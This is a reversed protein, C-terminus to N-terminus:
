FTLNELSDSTRVVCERVDCKIPSVESGSCTGTTGGGGYQGPTNIESYQPLQIFIPRGPFSIRLLFPRQTTSTEQFYDGLISKGPLGIQICKGATGRPGGPPGGRQGRPHASGGKLRRRVPEPHQPHAVPPHGAARHDGGTRGRPLM